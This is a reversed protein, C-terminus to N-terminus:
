GMLFCASDYSCLCSRDGQGAASVGGVDLLRTQKGPSATRGAADDAIDTAVLWDGRAGEGDGTDAGPRHMANPGRHMLSASANLGMGLGDAIGCALAIINKGTGAIEAGIVDTVTFPRLRPTACAEQVARARGHDTCALVSATPRELAIEAALNPGTLVNVIPIGAEAAADIARFTERVAEEGGSVLDMQCALASAPGRLENVHAMTWEVSDYVAALLAEPVEGGPRPEFHVIGAGPTRCFHVFDAVFAAYKPSDLWVVLKQHAAARKALWEDRDRICM